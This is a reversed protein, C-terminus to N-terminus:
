KWGAADIGAGNGAVRLADEGFNLVLRSGGGDFENQVLERLVDSPYHDNVFEEVFSSGFSSSFAGSDETPTWSFDAGAMNPAYRETSLLDTLSRRWPSRPKPARYNQANDKM